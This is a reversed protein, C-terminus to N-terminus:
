LGAARNFGFKHYKSGALKHINVATDPAPVYTNNQLGMKLSECTQQKIHCSHHTTLFPSSIVVPLGIKQQIASIRKKKQVSIKVGSIRRFGLLYNRVSYLSM